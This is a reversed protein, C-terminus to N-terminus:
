ARLLLLNKNEFQYSNNKNEKQPNEQWNLTTNKDVDVFSRSIECGMNQFYGEGAQQSISVGNIIDYYKKNYLM